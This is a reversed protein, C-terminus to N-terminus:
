IEKVINELLEMIIALEIESRYLDKQIEIPLQMEIDILRLKKSTNELIVLVANIARNQQRNKEELLNYKYKSVTDKKLEEFRDRMENMSQIITNESYEKKLEEYKNYLRTYKELLYIYKDEIDVEGDNIITGIDNEEEITSM